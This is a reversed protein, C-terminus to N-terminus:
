IGRSDDREKWIEDWDERSLGGANFQESTGTQPDLWDEWTSLFTDFQKIYKPETGDKSLKAKYNAIAMKIRDFNDPNKLITRLRSFGAKKGIKKPYLSYLESARVDTQAYTNIEKSFLPTSFLLSSAETQKGVAQERKAGSAALNNIDSRRTKGSKLGGKRGAEVRQLLWDFQSEAGCVHVSGEIIKALGVEIIESKLEQADWESKPIRSRDKKWHKQGLSWALILSGLAAELSGLKAILKIFRRDKYLDDEINIRAM